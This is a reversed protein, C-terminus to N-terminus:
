QRKRGVILGVLGMGLLLLTSGPDPVSPPPASVDIGMSGPFTVTDGYVLGSVLLYSRITVVPGFFQPEQHWNGEFPGTVVNNLGENMGYVLSGYPNPLYGSQSFMTLGFSVGNPNSTSVTGNIHLSAGTAAYSMAVTNYLDFMWGCGSPDGCYLTVDTLTFRSGEQVLRAGTGFGGPLMVPSVEPNGSVQVMGGFNNGGGSIQLTVPTASALSVAFAVFAAALVCGRRLTSGRLALIM